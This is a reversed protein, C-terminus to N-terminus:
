TVTFDSPPSQDLEALVARALSITVPRRTELALADLRAAIAAIAAFSREIRPLLYALIEPPVRLQRDTFHKVLVAQLLADDPPAIGVAPLSRLRSALDALAIASSAPARPLTLLLSGNRELTHNYVHLLSREAALEGHDIALIPPLATPDALAPGGGSLLVAGSRECWLHMLHTKGSGSPGYLVLAPAPWGPWREILEFAARNCDSLLFDGRGFHTEIPLPLARQRPEM